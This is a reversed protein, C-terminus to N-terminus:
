RPWDDKLIGYYVTDRRRGDHMLMHSRLVGEQTAGLKEIARRSRMNAADTKLEVREMGLVNFAYDILLQKCASNLGSGQYAKGLWTWGIELRKDHLSINGYSTSGAITNTAKDIITFPYRFGIEKDRFATLMYDQLESEDGIRSVTFLWLDKDFAILRFAEMDTPLLPRLLAKDNELIINRNFITQM